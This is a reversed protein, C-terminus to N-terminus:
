FSGVLLMIRFVTVVAFISLVFSSIILTKKIYDNESTYALSTNIATIVISIAGPIVLGNVSSLQEVGESLGYYLPVEPPLKNKFVYVSIISLFSISASTIILKLYPIRKIQVKIRTKKRSM